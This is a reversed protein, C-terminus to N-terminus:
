GDHQRQGYKDPDDGHARDGRRCLRDIFLKGLDAETGVDELRLDLLDADARRDGAGVALLIQGDVNMKEGGLIEAVTIQDIEKLAIHPRLEHAASECLM